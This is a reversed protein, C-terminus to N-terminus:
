SYLYYSLSSPQVHKKQQHPKGAPLVPKSDIMTTARLANLISTGNKNNNNHNSGMAAMMAASSSGSKPQGGAGGGAM